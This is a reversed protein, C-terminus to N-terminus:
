GIICGTERVWFKIGLSLGFGVLTANEIPRWASISKDFGCFSADMTRALTEDVGLQNIIIVEAELQSM